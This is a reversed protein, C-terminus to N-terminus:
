PHTLGPVVQHGAPAWVWGGLWLLVLEGSMVICACSVPELLCALALASGVGDWLHAGQSAWPPRLCTPWHLMTWVGQRM